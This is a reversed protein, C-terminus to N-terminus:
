KSVLHSYDDMLPTLELTCNVSDYVYSTCNRQQLCSGLCDTGRQLVDGIIPIDLPISCMGQGSTEIRDRISCVIELGDVRILCCLIVLCKLIAQELSSLYVSKSSRPMNKEGVLLYSFIFIYTQYRVLTTCHVTSNESTHYHWASWGLNTWQITREHSRTMRKM